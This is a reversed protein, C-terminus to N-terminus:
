DRICLHGATRESAPLLSPLLFTSAKALTSRKIYIQERVCPEACAGAKELVDPQLPHYDDISVNDDQLLFLIFTRRSLRAPCLTSNEEFWSFQGPAPPPPPVLWSWIVHQSRSGDTTTKRMQFPPHPKGGETCGHLLHISAAKRSCSCARNPVAFSSLRSGPSM